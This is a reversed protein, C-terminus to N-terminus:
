TLAQVTIAVYKESLVALASPRVTGDASSIRASSAFSYLHRKSRHM